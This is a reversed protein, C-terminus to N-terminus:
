KEKESAPAPVVWTVKIEKVQEQEFEKALQILKLYDAMSPKFEDAKLRDELKALASELIESIRTREKVKDWSNCEPGPKMQPPTEESAPPEPANEKIQQTM